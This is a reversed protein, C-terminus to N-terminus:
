ARPCSPAAGRQGHAERDLDSSDPKKGNRAARRAEARAAARASSRSAGSRRARSRRRARAAEADPAAASATRGRRRGRPRPLRGSAGRGAGRATAAACGRELVERRGKGLLAGRLDLPMPRRSPPTPRRPTRRTGALDRPQRGLGSGRGRGRRLAFLVQARRAREPAADEQQRRVEAAPLEARDAGAQMPSGIAGTTRGSSLGSRSCSSARRRVRKPLRRIALRSAARSM